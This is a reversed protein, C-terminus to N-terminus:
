AAMSSHQGQRTPGAENDVGGTWWEGSELAEVLEADVPGRGAAGEFPRWAIAALTPTATWRGSRTGARTSAAGNLRGAAAPAMYVHRRSRRRNDALPPRANAPTRASATEPPPPPPFRSGM